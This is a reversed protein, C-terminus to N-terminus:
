ARYRQQHLVTALARKPVFHQGSQDRWYKIVELGQDEPKLEVLRPEEDPYGLAVVSDVELGQPVGLLKAVRPYNVSKLWCAGLGKEVAMLLLTQVAAGVDYLAMAELEYEKRRLVVLYAMPEHGPQPDGKPAIYAAWKLCAFIQARLEPDTVAVYELPQRNAAAPGVRAADVMEELVELPVEEQRFSRVSRRKFAAQKVDM